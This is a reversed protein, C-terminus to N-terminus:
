DAPDAKVALLKKAAAGVGTVGRFADHIGRVMWRLRDGGHDLICPYALLKAPLLLGLRFKAYTPVYGRKLLRLTDRFQFYHRYPAPVHYTLGLLRRQAIGLRHPMHASELRFIRWGKRRMRWCWDFDVFDLFLDESFLDDESLDDIPFLMGSTALCRVERAMDGAMTGTTSHPLADDILHPGVCTRAGRSMADRLLEHIMSAAPSSDQDFLIVAACGAEKAARIGLNLAKGLGKNVGDQLLVLGSVDGFEGGGPSNDVVIVVDCASKM